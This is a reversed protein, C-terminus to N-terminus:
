SVAEAFVLARREPSLARLAAQLALEEPTLAPPPTARLVEEIAPRLTQQKMGASALAARERAVREWDLALLDIGRLHAWEMFDGAPRVWARRYSVGAGVRASEEVLLLVSGHLVTGLPSNERAAAFAEKEAVREKAADIAESADAMTAKKQAKSRSWGPFMEWADREGLKRALMDLLNIQATTPQSM